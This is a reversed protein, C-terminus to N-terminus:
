TRTYGKIQPESGSYIEIERRSDKLRYRDFLRKGSIEDPKLILWPYQVNAPEPLVHDRERYFRKLMAEEGEQDVAVAVIAGQSPEESPEKILVVDGDHINTDAGTM